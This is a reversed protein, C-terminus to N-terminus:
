LTEDSYLLISAHPQSSPLSNGNLAKELVNNCEVELSFDNRSSLHQFAKSYQAEGATVIALGFLVWCQVTCVLVYKFLFM